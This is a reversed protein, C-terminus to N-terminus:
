GLASLDLKDFGSLLLRAAAKIKKLSDLDAGEINLPMVPDHLSLRLLLWGEAGDAITGSKFSIRVGEFSEPSRFLM